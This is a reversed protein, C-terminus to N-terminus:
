PTEVPAAAPPTEKDKSSGKPRKGEAGAPLRRGRFPQLGFEVLKEARKGYHQKVGLDLFNVLTHGGQMLEALRKSVEQKRAALSAQEATLSRVEALLDNLQLRKLELHSLEVANAALAKSCLEMRKQQEAYTRIM